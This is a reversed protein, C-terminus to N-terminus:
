FGFKSIPQFSFLKQNELKSKILLISPHFKYRCNCIAKDVPDSINGSNQNVICMNENINM